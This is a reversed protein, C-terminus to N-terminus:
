IRGTNMGLKIDKIISLGGETLHKKQDMLVFVKVFDNYNLSKTRRRGLGSRGLAPRFALLPYKSFFPIIKSKFEKISNVTFDCAGGSSRDEIRGCELYQAVINLLERDRSHQTIRLVLQVAFGLKSKVSKYVSIFFCSEGEAFGVLWNPDPISGVIFNPRIAPLTDPFYDKLKDSLGLNLSAKLNVIEQLGQLNIDGGVMIEVINSFLVFDNRKKTLLYYQKFHPIIVNILADLDSVKFKLTNDSSNFFINGVGFYEQIAVIIDRDKENLALEFSVLVLFGLRRGEDKVVGVGFSGEADVLGTIFWPNLKLMRKVIKDQSEPCDTVTSIFRNANKNKIKVDLKLM